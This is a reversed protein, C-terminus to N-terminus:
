ERGPLKKWAVKDRLYVPTALEPALRESSQRALTLLDEARPLQESDQSLAESVQQLEPYAAFGTGSCFWTQTQTVSLQEQIVTAAQEPAMVGEEVCVQWGDATWRWAAFYVEGMRADIATFVSEAQHRRRTGEALALLNSIPILPVGAGLALGQAIGIGIRVGTFSGPGRGFAIADLQSLTVDASELLQECMPLILRTHAQPAVEYRWSIRQQHLLAASCAETSTDLALITAQTM